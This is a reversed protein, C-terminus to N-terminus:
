SDAGTSTTTSTSASSAALSSSTLRLLSTSARGYETEALLALAYLDAAATGQSQEIEGLLEALHLAGLMQSSSRLCHATAAAGEEDGARAATMLEGVHSVSEALYSEILDDRILGDVDDLDGMLSELVSSDVASSEQREDPDGPHTPEGHDAVPASEAAPRLAQVPKRAPDIAVGPAIGDDVASSEGRMRALEIAGSLQTVVDRLAKVRVPKALHSDMGAAACAARDEALV